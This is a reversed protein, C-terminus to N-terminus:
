RPAAVHYRGLAVTLRELRASRKPPGVLRSETCPSDLTAVGRGIQTLGPISARVRETFTVVRTGRRLRPASGAATVQSENAVM